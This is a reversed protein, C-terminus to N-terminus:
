NEILEPAQYCFHKTLFNMMRNAADKDKCIIAKKSGFGVMPQKMHNTRVRKKHGYSLVEQEYWNQLIIYAAVPIPPEALLNGTNTVTLFELPQASCWPHDSNKQAVTYTELDDSFPLENKDMTVKEKGAM